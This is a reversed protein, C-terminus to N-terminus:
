KGAPSSATEENVDVTDNSQPASELYTRYLSIALAALLLTM